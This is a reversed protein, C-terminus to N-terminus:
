PEGDGKQWSIGRRGDRWPSCGRPPGGFEARRGKRKREQLRMFAEAPDLGPEFRLKESLEPDVSRPTPRPMLATGATTMVQQGAGPIASLRAAEVVEQKKRDAVKRALQTERDEDEDDGDSVAFAGKLKEQRKKKLVEMRQREEEARRKEDEAKVRREEAKAEYEERARQEQREQEIRQEERKYRDIDGEEKEGPRDKAKGRKDPRGQDKGREVAVEDPKGGKGGPRRRNSPVSEWSESARAVAAYWGEGRERAQRLVVGTEPAMASPAKKSSSAAPEGPQPTSASGRTRRRSRSRSRTRSRDGKKAAEIQKQAELVEARWPTLPPPANNYRVMQSRRPGQSGPIPASREFGSM